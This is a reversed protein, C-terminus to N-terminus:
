VPKRTCGNREWTYVTDTGVQRAKDGPYGPKQVVATLPQGELRAVDGGMGAASCQDESDPCFCMRQFHDCCRSDRGEWQAGIVHANKNKRRPFEPTLLVRVISWGDKDVYLTAPPPTCYYSTPLLSYVLADSSEWFAGIRRSKLISFSLRRDVRKCGEHHEGNSRGLAWRAAYRAAAAKHRCRRLRGPVSSVGWAKMVGNRRPLLPPRGRRVSRRRM